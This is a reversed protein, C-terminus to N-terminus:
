RAPHAHEDRGIERSLGVMTAVLIVLFALVPSLLVIVVKGITTSVLKLILDLDQMLFEARGRNGADGLDAFLHFYWNQGVM